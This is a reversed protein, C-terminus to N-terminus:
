WVRVGKLEITDESISDQMLRGFTYGNDNSLIVPTDENYDQLLSMLEGVTMTSEACAEPAYAYRETEVILCDKTM